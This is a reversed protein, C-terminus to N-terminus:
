DGYYKIGGELFYDEDRATPQSLGQYIMTPVAVRQMLNLSPRVGPVNMLKEGIMKITTTPIKFKSYTHINSRPVQYYETPLNTNDIWGSGKLSIGRDELYPQLRQIDLDRAIRTRNSVYDKFFQPQESFKGKSILLERNPISVKIQPRGKIPRNFDTDYKNVRYWNDLPIGNNARISDQALMDVYGTQPRAELGLRTLLEKWTYDM